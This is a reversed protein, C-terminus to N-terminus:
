EDASKEESQGEAEKTPQYNPIYTPGTCLSILAGPLHEISKAAQHLTHLFLKRECIMQQNPILMQLTTVPTYPLPEPQGPQPYRPPQFGPVDYPTTQQNWRPPKYTVNLTQPQVILRIVTSDPLCSITNVIRWLDQGTITALPVYYIYLYQENENM